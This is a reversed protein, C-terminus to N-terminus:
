NGTKGKKKMTYSVRKKKNQTHVHFILFKLKSVARVKFHITSLQQEHERPFFWLYSSKVNHKGFFVISHHSVLQM